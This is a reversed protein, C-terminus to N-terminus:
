NGRKKEKGKKVRKAEKEIMAKVGGNEAIIESILKPKRM